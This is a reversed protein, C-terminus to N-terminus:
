QRSRRSFTNRGPVQTGIVEAPGVIQPTQDYRLDKLTTATHTVLGKFTSRPRHRLSKILSFTFAGYSTVGDRYEYSLQDEGCADFIVPIFPGEHGRVKCTQDFQRKSLRRLGMARGLRFTAGSEGVYKEQRAQDGGIVHKRTPLKRESWTQTASNWELIRHRIDDPPNIGRVKRSGDRTMGGAHCCDFIALFRTKYPLQSYLEYFQKDIIATRDSWDFDWPVLCEDLHDVELEAGYAPIQAGHGSYFLVREHGDQAGDLLWHLREIIADHTARENLVARINQPEFGREQLAASVLFTDNVCGDLRNAPDPYENIGIVLARRTPPSVLDRAIAFRRTMVRVSGALSHWVVDRTSAHDLYGDHHGNVTPDHATLDLFSGGFPTITQHFNSVGPLDIAHTLVPDNPNWLHHWFRAKDLQKIRGGWVDAVVAPHGIQSGFSLFTRDAIISPGQNNNTFLDYCILSGHSHACILDPQEKQIAGGIRARLKARLDRKIIWEAVIGARWHIEDPIGRLFNAVRHFFGGIDDFLGRTDPPMGFGRAGSVSSLTWAKLLEYLAQLYEPTPEPNQEFLDDYTVPSEPVFQIPGSYGYQKLGDAIAKEWQGPWEPNPGEHGVGHVLLIKMTSIAAQHSSIGIPLTAM